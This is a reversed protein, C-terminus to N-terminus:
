RTSGPPTWSSSRRALSRRLIPDRAAVLVKVGSFSIDGRELAERALPMEELSRAVRVNERATGWAVKFRTALWSAVSLHGDREFLRRREIEALRRLREVELLDVARQLEAFDEEILADPLEPLTESRLEEVV